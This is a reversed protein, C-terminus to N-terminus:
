EHTHKKISEQLWKPPVYAGQTKPQMAGSNEITKRGNPDNRDFSRIVRITSYGKSPM